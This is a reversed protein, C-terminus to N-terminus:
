PYEHTMFYFDITARYVLLSFGLWILGFNLYQFWYFARSSLPKYIDNPQYLVILGRGVIRFIGFTM